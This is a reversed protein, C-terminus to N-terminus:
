HGYGLEHSVYDQDFHRADNRNAVHADYLEQAHKEINLPELRCYRGIIERHTPFTCGGWDEVSFGVLQDFENKTENMFVTVRVLIHRLDLM